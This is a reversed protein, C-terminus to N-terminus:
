QNTKFKFVYGKTHRRKGKIVHQVSGMACGYAIAAESRSVHESLLNGNLNYVIVPKSRKLNAEIFIEKVNDTIKRGKSKEIRKKITEKSQKKGLHYQKGKNINRMKEVWGFPTKKGLKNYKHGKMRESVRQKEEETFKRPNKRKSEKIKSISEISLKRGGNGGGGDNCNMGNRNFKNSNSMLSRIWFMEKGQAYILDSEFSDIIEFSHNEIGYKVFSAYLIPQKKCDKAKYSAMRQKFNMTLGVYIRNNPNIVKYIIWEKISQGM